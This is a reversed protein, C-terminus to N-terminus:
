SSVIEKYKSEDLNLVIKADGTSIDLLDLNVENFINTMELENCINKVDKIKTYKMEVTRIADM